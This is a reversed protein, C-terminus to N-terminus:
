GRDFQRSAFSQPGAAARGGPAYKVRPYIPPAATSQGKAESVVALADALRCNIPGWTGRDTVSHLGDRPSAGRCRTRCRSGNCRRRSKWSPRRCSVSFLGNPNCGLYDVCSVTLSQSSYAKSLEFGSRLKKELLECCKPLPQSAMGCRTGAM